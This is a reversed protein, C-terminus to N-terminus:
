QYFSPLMDRPVIAGASVLQTATLAINFVMGPNGFLIVFLQSLTLFSCFLLSQFVWAVQFSTDIHIVFFMMIGLTLIALLVTFLVNIVQRSLFLRLPGVLICLKES